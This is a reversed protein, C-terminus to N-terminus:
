NIVSSKNNREFIRINNKLQELIYYVKIKNDAKGTFIIQEIVTSDADLAKQKSLDAAVLRYNKEFYSFDLSCGTTYDDGQGTSVKRIENYKKILDNISQDYFNRGDIEINYNKIKLRPLYYKRYSNKNTANDDNAYALVFM